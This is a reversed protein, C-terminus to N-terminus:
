DPRIQYLTRILDLVDNRDSATADRIAVTPQHLLKNTLSRALEDLVESPDAGSSLRTQARQLEQIQLTEGHTRFDRVLQQGARIRRERSYQDSGDLILTEASEAARQRDRMNAEIIETLDDISYLYVDRLTGVEPEIDRPVAIDVMFIPRHKRTHIAAEVAGKGLVPLPSGTSAIVIDFGKLESAVDTLQMARAGVRQALEEAHSLTRNAIALGGIGAQKLHAAVLEITDGAGLLLAKNQGLDTFIQQALSVAAYAVSVPNRGIDTDTRVRKAVNLTVQSLLNLEPGLTGASRAHDYADKVQGFIQPEGMVQSDLGSAVRMLHRAADQDWHTYGADRIEQVTVNRYDALWDVLPTQDTLETACYLETRNCTSLIAAEGVSPLARTLDKLARVLADAPFAIRERLDIPATRFNLGYALIAM